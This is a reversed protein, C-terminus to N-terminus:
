TSRTRRRCVDYTMAFVLMCMDTTVLHKSVTTFHRRSEKREQTSCYALYQHCKKCYLTYQHSKDSIGALTTCPTHTYATRCWRAVTQQSSKTFNLLDLMNCLCVKELSYLVRYSSQLPIFYLTCKIVKSPYRCVRIQLSLEATTTLHKKVFTDKFDATKWTPYDASDHQNNTISNFISLFHLKTKYRM